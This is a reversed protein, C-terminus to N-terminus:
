DIIEEKLTLTKWERLNREQGGTIISLDHTVCSTLINNSDKISNIVCIINEKLTWVISINNSSSLIYKNDKSFSVCNVVDNHDNFENIITANDINWVKITKDSSASLLILGDMSIALSNIISHHGLLVNRQSCTKTNWIIISLDNSASILLDGTNNYILQTIGWQHGLLRSITKGTLTNWIRISKDESGSALVTGVIPDFCVANVWHNHGHLTGMNMGWIMVTNDNSGSAIRLGDNNCACCNVANTHGRFTAVCESTALMWVKVLMDLSSTVVRKSDFTLALCTITDSHNYNQNNKEIIKVKKNDNIKCMEKMYNCSYHTDNVFKGEWVIITSDESVSVLKNGCYLVQNVTSEHGTLLSLITCSKSPNKTDFLWIKISNDDSSSIITNGDRSFCVSTVYSSHGNLKNIVQGTTVDTIYIIEDKGASVLYLSDSSFSVSFIYDDHKTILHIIEGNEIDWIRILSDESGTAIFKNNNSFAVAKVDYMEDQHFQQGLKM